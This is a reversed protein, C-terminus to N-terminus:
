IGCDEPEQECVWRAEEESYTCRNGLDPNGPCDFSTQCEDDAGHCRLSRQFTCYPRSLGCKYSGCDSDVRCDAPYCATYVVYEVYGETM